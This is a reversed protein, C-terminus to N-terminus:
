RALRCRMYSAATGSAPNHLWCRRAISTRTVFSRGLAGNQRARVLAYIPLDRTEHHVALKFRQALLTRLMLQKQAVTKPGETGIKASVNFRDADIWSPGGFMQADPLPRGPEGYAVIILDRLPVNTAEFRDGPFSHLRAGSHLANPKVSAVEFAPAKADPVQARLANVACVAVTGVIAVLLPTRFTQPNQM